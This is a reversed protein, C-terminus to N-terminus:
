KSRKGCAGVLLAERTVCKAQRVMFDIQGEIRREGFGRRLWRRGVRLDVGDPFSDHCGFFLNGITIGFDGTEGLEESGRVVVFLAGEGLSQFEGLRALFQVYIVKCVRIPIQGSGAAIGLAPNLLHDVLVM